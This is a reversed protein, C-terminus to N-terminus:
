FSLDLQMMLRADFESESTLGFQSGVGLFRGPGVPFKLGFLGHLMSEGDETEGELEAVTFFSSTTRHVCALAYELMEMQPMYHVNGDITATEGLVVRGAVGFLGIVDEEGEPISGSPVLGGGFLSVGGEGHGGQVLGYMLMVDTRNSETIEDNHVHLGLRDMLGAELHLAVDGSSPEGRTGQRHGTMRLSVMGPGEPVGMHSLFPHPLAHGDEAVEQGMLEMMMKRMASMDMDGAPPSDGHEEEALAALPGAVVMTMCLALVWAIRRNPGM